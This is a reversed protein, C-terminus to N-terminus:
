VKRFKRLVRERVPASYLARIILGECSMACMTERNVLEVGAARELYLCIDDIIKDYIPCIEILYEEPVYEASCTDGILVLLMLFKWSVQYKIYTRIFFDHNKEKFCIFIKVM